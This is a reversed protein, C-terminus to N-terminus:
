NEVKLYEMIKEVKPTYGRAVVKGNVVLTPFIWTPFKLIESLKRIEEINGEAGSMEIAQLVVKKLRRCKSCDFPPCIIKIENTM